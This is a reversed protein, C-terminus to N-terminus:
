RDGTSVCEYGCQLSVTCIHFMHHVIQVCNNVSSVCEYECQLSVTCIHFMHHVIQVCNNM